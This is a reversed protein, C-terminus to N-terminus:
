EEVVLFTNSVMLVEGIGLQARGLTQRAAAWTVSFQVAREACQVAEFVEGVEM